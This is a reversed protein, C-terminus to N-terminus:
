ANDSIRKIVKIQQEEHLKLGIMRLLPTTEPDMRIKLEDCIEAWHREKLGKV